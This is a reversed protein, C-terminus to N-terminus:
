TKIRGLFRDKYREWNENIDNDALALAESLEVAGLLAPM